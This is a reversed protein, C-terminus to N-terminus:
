RKSPPYQIAQTLKKAFETKPTPAVKVVRKRKVPGNVKAEEILADIEREKRAWFDKLRENREAWAVEGMSKLFADREKNWTAYQRQLVQLRAEPALKKGLVREEFEVVKRDRQRKAAMYQRQYENRGDRKIEAVEILNKFAQLNQRGVVLLENLVEAEGRFPLARPKGVTSRLKRVHQHFYSSDVLFQVAMRARTLDYSIM